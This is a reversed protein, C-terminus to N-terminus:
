PRGNHMAYAKRHYNRRVSESTTQILDRPNSTFFRSSKFVGSMNEPKNYYSYCVYLARIISDFRDDHSSRNEVKITGNANFEVKLALIEKILSPYNPFVIKKTHLLQSFLKYQSDNITQTHSVMEIKKDLGRKSLLDSIIAGSWQDFIGFHIPYKTFLYDISDIVINVDLVKHKEFPPLGPKLYKIFDIVFVGEDLIDQSATKESLFDSYSYAEKTFSEKNRIYKPEFHCVCMSTGDNSLGFDLGIFHPKTLDSCIDNEPQRRNEVCYYISELDKIWNLGGEIFEAAYEQEYSSVDSNYVHKFFASNVQTNVEWTPARVALTYTDTVSKTLANEFDSYFKNHKGNPSSIIFLRGVPNGEPDVFSSISPSIAEYIFKDMPKDKTSHPSNGFHAFEDFIAIINSSGRVGPSNPVASIEFTHSGKTQILGKDIAELDKLSWFCM